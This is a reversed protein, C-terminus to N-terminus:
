EEEGESPEAEGEEQEEGAKAAPAAVKPAPLEGESLVVLHRLVSEDLKVVRHLEDLNSPDARFRVVVYYGSEHKKVPYALSRKGWHDVATIEGKGAATIVQHFRELKQEIAPRELAPDFIYVVEYDRM